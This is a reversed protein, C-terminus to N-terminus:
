WAEGFFHGDRALYGVQLHNVELHANGTTTPHLEARIIPGEQGIVDSWVTPLEIAWGGHDSPLSGERMQDWCPRLAARLDGARMRIVARSVLADCGEDVFHPGPSPEWETVRGRGALRYETVGVEGTRQENFVMEEFAGIQILADDPVSGDFLTFSVEDGEQAPKDVDRGVTYVAAVIQDDPLPEATQLRYRLPAAETRNLPAGDVAFDFSMQEM